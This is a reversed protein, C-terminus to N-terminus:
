VNTKFFPHDLDVCCINLYSLNFIIHDSCMVFYMDFVLVVANADKVNDLVGFVSM